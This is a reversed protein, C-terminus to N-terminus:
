RSENKEVITFKHDTSSDDTFTKRIKNVNNSYVHDLIKNRRTDSNIIQIFNNGLLYKQLSNIM